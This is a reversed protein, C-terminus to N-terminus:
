ESGRRTAHLLMLGKDVAQEVFAQADARLRAHDVAFTQVMEDAIEALTRSGDARDWIFTATENLSHLISDHPTIVIAEGDITRAPTDPNQAPYQRFLADTEM